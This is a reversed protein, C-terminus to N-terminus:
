KKSVHLIVGLKNGARQFRPCVREKVSSETNKCRISFGCMKVMERERERNYLLNEVTIGFLLLRGAGVDERWFSGSEIM